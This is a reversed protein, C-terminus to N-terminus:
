LIDFSAWTLSSDNEKQIMNIPVKVLQRFHGFIKDSKQGFCIKLFHFKGPNGCKLLKETGV